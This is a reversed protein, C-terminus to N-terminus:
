ELRRKIIGSFSDLVTKKDKPGYYFHTSESLEWVEMSGAKRLVAASFNSVLDDNESQWAICPVELRPLLKETRYIEGFLELVRPIWTIYQWIFPTAQIGCAKSFAAELPKEERLKGFPLKLMNKICFLRPWPRMPVALLFLQSVKEPNEVALQISFLTGMSHGALIVRDHQRSLEEFASYAYSRWQKMSSRGFDMASGGHGPLLVNRVSWTEPVLEVLPMLDRFQNPTGAIGHIFLVATDAGPVIRTFEEHKM